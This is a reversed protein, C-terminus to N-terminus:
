VSVRRLKLIRREAARKGAERRRARRLAFYLVNLFHTTIAFGTAMSTTRQIGWNDGKGDKAEPYLELLLELKGCLAREEEELRSELAVAFKPNLRFAWDLECCISNVLELVEFSTQKRAYAHAPTDKQKRRLLLVLQAGALSHVTERTAFIAPIAVPETKIKTAATLSVPRSTERKERGSGDSNGSNKSGKASM